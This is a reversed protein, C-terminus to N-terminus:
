PLKHPFGAFRRGTSLTAAISYDLGSDLLEYSYAERTAPDVPPQTRPQGGVSSVSYAPFLLSLSLPYTQNALRFQLLSAQLGMIDFVRQADPGLDGSEFAPSRLGVLEEAWPPPPDSGADSTRNPASGNCGTVLLLAAIM